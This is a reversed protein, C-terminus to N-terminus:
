LGFEERDSQAAQNFNINVNTGSDGKGITRNLWEKSAELQIKEDEASIALKHVNEVVQQTKDIPFLKKYAESETLNKPNKATAPRYGAEQMAKSIPKGRNEVLIELAKKQKNTAM